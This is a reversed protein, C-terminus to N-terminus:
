EVYPEKVVMGFRRGRATEEINDTGSPMVADKGAEIVINFYDIGEDPETEIRAM